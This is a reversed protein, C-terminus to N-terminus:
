NGKASAKRKKIEKAKRDGEKSPTESPLFFIIPDKCRQHRIDDSWSSSDKHETETRGDYIVLYGIILRDNNSLYSSVQILGSDIREEKHETKNENKGLWKVELVLVGETTCINIDTKDQGLGAPEAYVNIADHIFNDCWWFLDRHFLIETGRSPQSILIRSDRDKWYEFGKENKVRSSFHDSLVSELEKWSRSWKDQERQSSSNAIEIFKRGKVYWCITIGHTTFCVADKKVAYSAPDTLALGQKSTRLAHGDDDLYIIRSGSLIADKIGIRKQSSTRKSNNLHYVFCIEDKDFLERSDKIASHAQQLAKDLKTKGVGGALAALGFSDKFTEKLCEFQDNTFDCIM